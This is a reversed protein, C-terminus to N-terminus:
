TGRKRVAERYTIYLGSGVIIAAGVWTWLDPFDGFIAYGLITAGILQGYGFPSVVPVPAYQFAKVVCWHGLGGTLGLSAFVLWDITNAPMKLDVFPLGLSAVTVGVIAAYTITTSPNDHGAVKRTLIQYLAYSAASGLVLTTAWHTEGLGPRIIILAGVFGILVAAWRRPGVYEGLLPVALATVMLPGTFSISAATPIAVYALATFYFVTSTFLLISRVIQLGPRSTAFLSRGNSPLFVVLMFLFHGAYRAWVIQATGYDEALYKVGSNLFPFLSVALVMFLIGRLADRRYDELSAQMSSQSM